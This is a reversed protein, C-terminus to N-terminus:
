VPMRMIDQYAGVLRDRVAVVTQLTLEAAGVAQVVDTIDAEGTVAKASMSESTKLTKISDEAKQRLFDSFSVGGEEGGISPGKGINATNTYASIAAPNMVKDVM